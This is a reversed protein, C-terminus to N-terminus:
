SSIFLNKSIFVLCILCKSRSIVQQLHDLTEIILHNNNALCIYMACVSAIGLGLYTASSISKINNGTSCCFSIMQLLCISMPLLFVLDILINPIQWKFLQFQQKNSLNALRLAFKSFKLVEMVKATHHSKISHPFTNSRLESSTINIDSCFILM